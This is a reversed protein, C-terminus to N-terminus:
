AQRSGRGMNGSIARANLLLINLLDLFRKSRNRDCLNRQKIILNNTQWHEPPNALFYIAVKIREIYEEILIRDVDLLNGLSVVLNTYSKRKHLIHPKFGFIRLSPSSRVM